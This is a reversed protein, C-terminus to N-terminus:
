KSKKYVERNRDTKHEYERIAKMIEKVDGKVYNGKKYDELSEKVDQILEKSPYENLKKTAAKSKVSKIKSINEM